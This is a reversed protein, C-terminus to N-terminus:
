FTAGLSREQAAERGAGKNGQTPEATSSQQPVPPFATWCQDQVDVLHGSFYVLSRQVFIIPKMEIRCAIRQTICVRGHKVATMGQLVFIDLDPSYFHPVRLLPLSPCTSPLNYSCYSENNGEVM